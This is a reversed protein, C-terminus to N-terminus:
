RVRVGHCTISYGSGRPGAAALTSPGLTQWDALPYGADDAALAKAVEQSAAVGITQKGAGGGSVEVVFVAHPRAADPPPVFEPTMQVRERPAERTADVDFVRPGPIGDTAHELVARAADVRCSGEHCWTGRVAVALLWEIAETKPHATARVLKGACNGYDGEYFYLGASGPSQIMHESM